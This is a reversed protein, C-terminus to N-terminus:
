IQHFLMSIDVSLWFFIAWDKGVQAIRLVQKQQGNVIISAPTPRDLMRQM